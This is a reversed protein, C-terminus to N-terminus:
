EGGSARNALMALLGPVSVLYRGGIHLVPLQGARAARYASHHGIGLLRAAEEVKITARTTKRLEALDV